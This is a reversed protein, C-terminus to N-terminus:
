SRKVRRDIEARLKKVFNDGAIGNQAYGWKGLLYNVANLTGDGFVGNEDMGYKNLGLKKAILLLEKLALCDKDGKKKGTKDLIKTIPKVTASVTKKSVNLTKAIGDAYAKALKKYSSKIFDADSKNDVFGGEVLVVPADTERIVAFYDRGGDGTRTKIGRSKMLKSTEANINEALKKSTGGVVSHYVEFGQGGGANFHISIVLDPKYANCRGIYEDMDTDVDQTRSFKYDIGYESLFEALALATKLTYEKEVIYKAAGGDIGGHGPIIFVKKAM